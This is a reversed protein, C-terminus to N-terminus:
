ADPAGPSPPPPTDERLAEIKLEANTLQRECLRLLKSGQGYKEVLEALPVDGSELSDVLNELRALADEFSPEDPTATSKAM